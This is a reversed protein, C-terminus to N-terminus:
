GTFRRLFGIAGALGSGFLLFTGPIPTASGVTQNNTADALYVPLCQAPTNLLWVDTQGLNTISPQFVTYQNPGTQQYYYLGFQDTSGLALLPTGSATQGSYVYWTNGTEAITFDAAAASFPNSASGPMTLLLASGPSTTDQTAGPANIYLYGSMTCGQPTFSFVNQDNTTTPTWLVYDANAHSAAGLAIGLILLFAPLLIRLKM